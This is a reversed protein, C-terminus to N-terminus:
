LVLLESVTEEGKYQYSCVVATVVYLSARREMSRLEARVKDMLEKEKVCGCNITKTREIVKGDSRLHEYTITAWRTPNVQKIPATNYIGYKGICTDGLKYM